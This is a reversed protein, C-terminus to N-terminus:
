RSAISGHGGDARGTEDFDVQAVFVSEGEATPIPSDWTVVVGGADIVSQARPFSRTAPLEELADGRRRGSNSCEDHDRDARRRTTRRRASTSPRTRRRSQLQRRCASREGDVSVRFGKSPVFEIGLGAAVHCGQAPPATTGYGDARARGPRYRSGHHHSSPRDAQQQHSLGGRRPDYQGPDSPWAFGKPRHFHRHYRRPNPLDPLLDRPSSITSLSLNLDQAAPASTTGAARLTDIANRALVLRHPDRRGRREARRSRCRGPRLGNRLNLVILM